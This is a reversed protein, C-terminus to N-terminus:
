LMIQLGDWCDKFNKIPKPFISKSSCHTVKELYMEFATVSCESRDEVNEYVRKTNISEFEKKYPSAKANKTLLDCNIPLYRKGTSDCEISIDEKSIHPLTERGRLHCFYM